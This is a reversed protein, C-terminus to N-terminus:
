HLHGGSYRDVILHEVDITFWGVSASSPLAIFDLSEQHVATHNLPDEVVLVLLSPLVPTVRVCADPIRFPVCPFKDASHLAPPVM